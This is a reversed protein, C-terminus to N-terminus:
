SSCSTPTARWRLRRSRPRTAPRRRKLYESIRASQELPRREFDPYKTRLIQLIAGDAALVFTWVDDPAEQVEVERGRAGDVRLRAAITDWTAAYPRYVHITTRQDPVLAEFTPILLDDMGYDAVLWPSNPLSYARRVLDEVILTDGTVRLEVDRMMAAGQQWSVHARALANASYTVEAAGVLGDARIMATEIQDGRRSVTHFLVPRPGWTVFTDAAPRQFGSRAM